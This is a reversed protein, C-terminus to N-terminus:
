LGLDSVGVGLGIENFGDIVLLCCVIIVVGKIVMSLGWCIWGMCCVKDIWSGVIGWIFLVLNCEIVGMVFLIVGNCNVVGNILSVFRLFIMEMFVGVVVICSSVFIDLCRDSGNEFLCDIYIFKKWFFIKLLKKIYFYM